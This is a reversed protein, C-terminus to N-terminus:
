IPALLNRQIDHTLAKLPSIYLTHLGQMPAEILECLTPLFGSLTKGAGTPAVLLTSRNERAQNLMHAQYDRIAWGKSSFWDQLQIPLQTKPMNTIRAFM